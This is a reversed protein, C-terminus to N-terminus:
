NKSPLQQETTSPPTPIVHPKDDDSDDSDSDSSSSDDDDSSDDSEPHLSPPKEDDTEMQSQQPGASHPEERLNEEQETTSPPPGLDVYKGRSLKTSPNAADGHVVDNITVEVPTARRLHEPAARILTGAHSLWVIAPAIVESNVNPEVAIIRAPGRYGPTARDKKGKQRRFYYVIDGVQPNPLTRSRAASALRIISRADAEHFATAATARRIIHQEYDGGDEMTPPVHDGDLLPHSRGHFWQAPTKGNYQGNRNKAETICDVIYQPDRDSYLDDMSLKQFMDKFTEIHREVIGNQWHSAGACMRILTGREAAWSKLKESHFVGEEDTHITKPVLLYRCWERVIQLLETDNCNGINIATNAKITKVVRAVHFRSAEDILHLIM